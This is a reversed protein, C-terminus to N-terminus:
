SKRWVIAEVQRVRARDTATKAPKYIIAGIVPDVVCLTHRGNRIYLRGNYEAVYTNKYRAALNHLEQIM